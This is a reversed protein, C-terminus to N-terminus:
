SLWIKTMQCIKEQLHDLNMRSVKGTKAKKMVVEKKPLSHWCGVKYPGRQPRDPGLLLAQYLNPLEISLLAMM